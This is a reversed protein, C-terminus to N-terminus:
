GPGEAQLLRTHLDSLYPEMRAANAGLDSRGVRSVSRMDIRAGDGEPRVRIVIDDIFGYWFSEATAEIIGAQADTRGITWNQERALTLAAEFARAPPLRTTVPQIDPYASQQLQTFARGDGTRKNLLDLDNGSPVAARADVVGQSFVPPDVLDTSIDHIPPVDAANQRVYFAYGLGLLPVILAVLALLLGRRPKVFVALLLGIFALAATALILRPGWVFTMQGFGVTWPFLHFKTGLAAVVFYVPLLLAIVFMAGVWRDRFKDM